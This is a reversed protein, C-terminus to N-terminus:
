AARRGMEKEADRFRDTALDLQVSIKGLLANIARLNEVSLVKLMPVPIKVLATVAGLAGAVKGEVYDVDDARCRKAGHRVKGSTRLTHFAENVPAEKVKNWQGLQDFPKLAVLLMAIKMPLRREGDRPFDMAKLLEPHLDATRRYNNVWSLSKGLLAAIDAESKGERVLQNVAGSTEAHTHGERCFNAAVSAEFLGERTIAPDYNIKITKAGIGKLGRWRREGDVIMWRVDPRRKDVHAIVSIPQIQRRGCSTATAQLAAQDFHKRPQEPNPVVSDIPVSGTWPEGTNIKM